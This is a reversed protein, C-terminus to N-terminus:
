PKYFAAYYEFNKLYEDVNDKTVYTVKVEPKEQFRADNQLKYVLNYVAVYGKMWPDDAATAFMTGAKIANSADENGDIGVLTIEDGRGAAQIAQMAGLAAEDNVTFVGQIEGPGYKQLMNEMVAMGDKRNFNAPQKDLLKSEPNATLAALFGADREESIYNGAIGSLIIYNGKGDNNKIAMDAIQQAVVKNDQGAFVTRDSNPIDTSLTAVWIGLKVANNVQDMVANQDIVCIGISDVNMLIANEFIAVQEEVNFTQIPAMQQIDVQIGEKRLEQAAKEAGQRMYVWFPNFMDPMIWAFKYHATVPVEAAPAQTAPAETVPAETPATTATQCGALLTSAIVIIVISIKLFKTMDKEEFIPVYPQISITPSLIMFSIM